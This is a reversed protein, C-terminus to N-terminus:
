SEQEDLEVKLTSAYDMAMILITFYLKLQEEITRECMSIKCYEFYTGDSFNFDVPTEDKGDWQPTAWIILDLNTTNVWGLGGSMPDIEPTYGFLSNNYNTRFHNLVHDITLNTRM